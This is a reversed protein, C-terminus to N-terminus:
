TVTVRLRLYLRQGAVGTAYWTYQPAVSANPIATWSGPEMTTSQEAIYTIGSVGPPRTFTLVIDDDDREWVPLVATSPEAPNSGMAFEMLNDLGDRDPDADNAAIGANEYTEFNEFRWSDLATFTYSIVTEVLGSTGNGYGGATRARARIKGSVPLTLGTREWGGTMRTGAGLPTWSAGENTSLEFTVSHTEPSSGGRLWQVESPSRLTLSQTAPDNLLRVIGFHPAGGATTFEGGALVRGDPQLCIGYSVDNLNPNFADLTGAATLRALRNRTQGSVTRFGGGILIAGDTQVTITRVIDGAGANFSADLSGDPMLRALNQRATGNVSSFTGGILIRGDAQLAACYVSGDVDGNFSTDISGSANLRAVRNRPSGAVNTFSGGIIMKGDPQLVNTRTIENANPNYATDLSGDANLRAIHNRTVGGMTEFYGTVVLKGDPQIVMCRLQDGANPNYAADLSGDSNLRALHHRTTGGVSSYLGGLLIKGDTQVAVCYVGTGSVGPNFAPELSDDPLLRAGRTRTLGSIVGFNGGLVLKGDPQTAASAVNADPNPLFVPDADGPLAHSFPSLAVLAGVFVLAARPISGTIGTRDIM